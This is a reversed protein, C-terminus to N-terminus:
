LIPQLPDIGGGNGGGGGGSGSGSNDNGTSNSSTIIYYYGDLYNSPEQNLVVFVIGGSANAVTPETTIYPLNNTYALSGSNNVGLLYNNNGKQLAVPTGSPGGIIIDQSNSMPNIMGGGSSQVVQWSYTEPNSNADLLYQYFKSDSQCFCLSGEVVVGDHQENAIPLADRETTNAVVLYGGKIYQADTLHKSAQGSAIEFAFNTAM